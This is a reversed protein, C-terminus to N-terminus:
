FKIGKANGRNINNRTINGRKSVYSDFGRKNWGHYQQPQEAITRTMVDELDSKSLGNYHNSTTRSWDIGNGQLMGNLQENWQEHTFIETGKPADMIVNRGQPKSIKGDPTVITERFNSGSGDNVMMLGGDHTGGMWYQPIEQSAVAVIQALGIGAIIAAWPMGLTLPSQAIASVVAQATDIAINFITQKQKAKAERFSIEKKKAELELALKEEAEKNGNAFKFSADYQNQMREREDDFNKASLGSIFNFVEQASEAIANFTVGFNEGFGKIEGNLLKFTETFGSKSIFDSTFGELYNKMADTLANLKEIDTDEVRVRIVADSSPMGNLQQKLLELLRIQEVIAPRNINNAVIRDIALRELEKDLEQMLTGVTNLHSELGEIEDRQEKKVRQKKEKVKKDSVLTEEIANGDAVKKIFFADDKAWQERLRQTERREFQIRDAIEKQVEAKTKGLSSGAPTGGVAGKARANAYDKYLENIRVLSDQEIELREKEREQLIGEAARAKATTLIAASLLDYQVKADGAMIAEDSLNKFYFPYQEQLDDVARKRDKYSNNLDTATKYLVDINVKEEAYKGSSENLAENLQKQNEALTKTGSSAKSLSSIWSIIKGGYLTLLTVGVSLATQWSFIGGVLEKFLSKTPQGDKILQKNKERIGNIADFLAPFNNSLAMFGTNVSNAFAPAERTLQNISNGLANYGSAYNGVNRQNKGITSDVKLLASQYQNIRASLSTLQKEEKATLTNGLEKRIALDNYTKTLVNISNQIRQYAGENKANIANEKQANKDFSDFAKERAQQLRIEALRSQEAKKGITESLSNYKSQLKELDAIAKANSNTSNNLGAPTSIGAINKSALLASQSVKILESDAINLQAVLKEVQKIAESGIVANVENAM